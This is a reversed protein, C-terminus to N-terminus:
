ISGDMLEIRQLRPPEARDSAHSVPVPVLIFTYPWHQRCYRRPKTSLGDYLAELDTRALPWQLLDQLAPTIRPTAELQVVHFPVLRQRREIRERGSHM